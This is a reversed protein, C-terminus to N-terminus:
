DERQVSPFPCRLRASQPCAPSSLMDARPRYPPPPPSPLTLNLVPELPARGERRPSRVRAPSQRAVAFRAILLLDVAHAATSSRYAPLTAVRVGTRAADPADRARTAIRVVAATRARRGVDTALASAARAVRAVPAVGPLLRARAVRAGTAAVGEPKAVVVAGREESADSVIGM